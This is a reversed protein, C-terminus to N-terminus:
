VASSHNTNHIQVYCLSKVSAFVRKKKALQSNLEIQAIVQALPNFGIKGVSDLCKSNVIVMDGCQSHHGVLRM